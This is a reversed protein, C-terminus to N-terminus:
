DKWRHLPTSKQMHQECVTLQQQVSLLIQEIRKLTNDISQLTEETAAKKIGITKDIDLM